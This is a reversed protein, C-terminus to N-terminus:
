PSRACKATFEGRWRSADEELEVDVRLVEDSSSSVSVHYRSGHFVSLVSADSDTGATM